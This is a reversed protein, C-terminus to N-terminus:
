KEEIIEGIYMTHVPENLYYKEVIDSPIIQKNFESAYIKKCIITKSAEKYSTCNYEVEIPTLKSISDKDINKGSKTGYTIIVDNKYKDDYFSVTFYDNNEMFEYTYRNQKVFVILVKKNWLKGECAWGITMTNHNTLNGATLLAGKEIIDNLDNITNNMMNM